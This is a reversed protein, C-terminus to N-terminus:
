TCRIIGAGEKLGGFRRKDRKLFDGNRRNTLVQEEKKLGYDASNM